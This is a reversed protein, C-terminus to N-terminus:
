DMTDNNMVRLPLQWRYLALGLHMAAATADFMGTSRKVARRSGQWCDWSDNPYPWGLVSRHMWRFDVMWGSCKM